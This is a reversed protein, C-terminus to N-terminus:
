HPPYVLIQVDVLEKLHIEMLTLVKTFSLKGNSCGLAPIRIRKIKKEQIVKKLDILGLEIWEYKSPNKWHDKTPFNIILNTPTHFCWMKGIEIKRDNCAQQYQKFMKPYRKKYELAIGKGMVGVCNITNVLADRQIDNFINESDKQIIIM